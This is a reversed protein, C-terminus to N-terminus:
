LAGNLPDYKEKSGKFDGSGGHKNGAHGGGGGHHHPASAMKAPKSATKGGGHHAVSAALGQSEPEAAAPAPTAPTTAGAAATTSDPPTIAIDPKPTGLKVPESGPDYAHSKVPEPPAVVVPAAMSAAAVGSANAQSQQVGFAVAGGIGSLVIAAILLKKGGGSRRYPGFDDGVDLAMPVVSPLAAPAMSSPRASQTAVPREVVPPWATEAVVPRAISPLRPAPAPQQQHQGFASLPALRPAPAAQQQPAISPLRPAPAAQQYQGLPALRAPAAQQQPAISPLRPAPAAQQQYQALSPLRPAPAAAEPAPQISPLRPATAAGLLTQALPQLPPPRSPNMQPATVAPPAAVYPELKSSVAQQLPPLSHLSAEATTVAVPASTLPTHESSATDWADDSGGDDAANLGILTDQRLPAKPAPEEIPAMQASAPEDAFSQEFSTDDDTPYRATVEDSASHSPAEAIAVNRATDVETDAFSATEVVGSAEAEDGADDDGLGLLEGLSVPADMGTQWVRTHENIAGAQFAEDLQEITVVRVDNSTVEVHWLEDDHTSELTGNM